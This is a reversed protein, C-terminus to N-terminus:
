LDVGPAHHLEGARLVDRRFRRGDLGVHALGDGDLLRAQPHLRLSGRIKRNRPLQTLAESPIRTELAGELRQRRPPLPTVQVVKGRGLLRRRPRRSDFLRHRRYEVASPEQLSALHPPRGDRADPDLERRNAEIRTSYLSRQLQCPTQPTARQARANPPVTSRSSM